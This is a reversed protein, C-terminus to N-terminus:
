LQWAAFGCPAFMRCVQGLTQFADLLLMHCAEASAVGLVRKTVTVDYKGALPVPLSGTGVGDFFGARLGEVSTGEVELNKDFGSILRLIAATEEATRSDLLAELCVVRDQENAVSLLLEELVKARAGVHGAPVFFFM